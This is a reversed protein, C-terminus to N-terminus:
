GGTAAMVRIIQRSANGFDHRQPKRKLGDVIAQAIEEDAAGQRMLARLDIRGEHGLCLHLMGEATLRVRNCTECFHQSIPTIFGISFAGDPSVLYRAPGGGPVVGDVLGYRSRLRERLRAFEPPKAASSAAGVPMLEILRLVFGHQMCFAAMADVEADSTGALPVMNIKIPAFGARKGEMLGEVVQSVVDRGTISLVRERDLSDLSVNLRSVGAARLQPALRNLLTGNTSLSLDRIGPIAAIATALPVIDRRLLPEGGTLRVRAVGLGAFVGILRTLEASSLCESRQAFGRFGKPMCYSCRLDCRDTVSLRVYEVRRGTGDLLKNASM